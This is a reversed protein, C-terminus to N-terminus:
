RLPTVRYLGAGHWPISPAFEHEFQGLDRHEWLDRIRLAGYESLGLEDKGVRV